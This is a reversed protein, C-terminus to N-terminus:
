KGEAQCTGQYSPTGTIPVTPRYGSLVYFDPRAMPLAWRLLVIDFTISDISLLEASCSKLSNSFKSSIALPIIGLGPLM